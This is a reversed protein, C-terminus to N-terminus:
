YLDSCNTTGRCSVSAILTWYIQERGKVHNEFGVSGIFFQCFGLQVKGKMKM